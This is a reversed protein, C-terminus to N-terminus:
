SDQKIYKLKIIDDPECELYNCLRDIVKWSVYEGKGMKAVTASSLKIDDVLNQKILKKVRLQHWLGKYDVVIM